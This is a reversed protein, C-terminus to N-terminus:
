LREDILLDLPAIPGERAQVLLTEAAADLAREVAGRQAYRAHEVADPDVVVAGARRVAVLETVHIKRGVAVAGADYNRGIAVKDRATSLWVRQRYQRHSPGHPREVLVGRRCVLEDERAVLGAAQLPVGLLDSSCVDSSWDSIRM